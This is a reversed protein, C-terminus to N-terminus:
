DGEPAAARQEALKRDKEEISSRMERRYAELRELVDPYKLALIEAALVGANRAGHRGIALTAVPVGTPMQVTAHLADVGSLPGGDMPVGIVPLLTYSAVVGALHAALGAGVVIVEVGKKELEDVIAVTREPTRHASTIRIDYEIGFRKLMSETERMTKLDSDSGMLVAARPRRESTM